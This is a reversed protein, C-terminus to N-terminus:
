AKISAQGLVKSVVTCADEINKKSFTPHVLFVLSTEGIEKGKPLPTKPGWGNKVFAEELYIEACCGAFCPVGEANIASMIRNRDWEPHLYEPKVFVYYKYYSHYEHENPKTVRLAPINEFCKTLIAAHERRKKVWSTLKKLQIRGVAAQVETMRGNTGFSNHLWRFGQEQQENYVLDYDKGHDKYSWAKKWVEYNNTTLMGGEGLTTMIKDQCFSFASADGFSGVYRGKYMAGHAQACDEIVKLNHKKALALIPDMDCPWGALHVVIIAKTKDTLVAKITEATMNQSVPDVDAVVPIAGHMVACSATALFTRTPVIVEDGPGIDLAHLALELAVTGNTLAVGYECGMANAFEKEFLKGEEGTWYNVNGSRIVSLVAAVEDECFFPWPALVQKQTFLMMEEQSTPIVKSLLEDSTLYFRNKAIEKAPVGVVTKNDAVPKVVVAGAGIMVDSGIAVKQVVNAGMGVWSRAGITVGGALAAKASVHVGEDLICDHEVIAGTNIINVPGIKSNANVVANSLVVTGDELKALPSVVANPHIIVPFSFKSQRLRHYIETRKQSDGLAIALDLFDNEMFKAADITGIVPWNGIVSLAPFRDDLFAIKHWRKTLAATDAVVSGHGGAGIILLNTM